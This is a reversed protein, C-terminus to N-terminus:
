KKPESYPYPGRNPIVHPQALIKKVSSPTEEGEKRKNTEPEEEHFTLRSFFIRKLKIKRCM